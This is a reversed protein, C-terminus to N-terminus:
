SQSLWQEIRPPLDGPLVVGTTALQEVTVSAALNGVVAAEILSAGSVLALVVGASVSDGAGTTDLPGELRVAPVSAPVPDSVLIGREGCTLFVPANAKKRLQRIQKELIDLGIGKGPVPNIIGMAEFQNPKITINHFDQINTRSDAFFVTRPYRAAREALACRVTDDIVGCGPTETQDVIIVGDVDPLVRDLAEIVRRHLFPPIPMRNKIDYREYEGELGKVTIDRPKIYTPTVIDGSAFLGGTSCGLAELDARLEFSEGDDGTLGVAHLKGAGLSALNKVVNGAAGPSHRVGTVQHATKGTEISIETRAPDVDLYKDLFFDGIVAIRCGPFRDILHNLREPTLLNQRDTAPSM